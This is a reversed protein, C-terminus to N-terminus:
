EEDCAGTVRRGVNRHRLAGEIDHIVGEYRVVWHRSDGCACPTDFLPFDWITNFEYSEGCPMEITLAIVPDSLDCGVGLLLTLVSEYTAPVERSFSLGTWEQYVTNLNTISLSSM